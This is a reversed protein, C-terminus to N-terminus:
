IRKEEIAKHYLLSNYITSKFAISTYGNHGCHCHRMCGCGVPPAVAAVAVAIVAAAAEEPPEVAGFLRDAADGDEVTEAAM